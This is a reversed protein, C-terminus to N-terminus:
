YHDFLRRGVARLSRGPARGTLKAIQGKEELIRKEKCMSDKKAEMLEDEDQSDM